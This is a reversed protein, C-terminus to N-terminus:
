SSTTWYLSSTTFEAGRQRGSGWSEALIWDRLLLMVGGWGPLRRPSKPGSGESLKGGIERAVGRVTLTLDDSLAYSPNM